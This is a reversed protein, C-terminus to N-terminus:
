ILILSQEVFPMMRESIAKKSVIDVNEGLIEELEMALDAVEFGIPRSFEVLIDVDSEPRAEGRSYSGFVGIATLPYKEQLYPKQEQLQAIIRPLTTM